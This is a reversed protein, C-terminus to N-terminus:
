RVRREPLICADLDDLFTRIQGDSPRKGTGKFMKQYARLTEYLRDPDARDDTVAQRVREFVVTIEEDSVGDPRHRHVHQEVGSVAGKTLIEREFGEIGGMKWVIWVFAVGLVVILALAFAICGRLPSRREASEPMGHGRKLSHIEAVLRGGSTSTSSAPAKVQRPINAVTPPVLITTSPRGLPLSSGRTFRRHWSM